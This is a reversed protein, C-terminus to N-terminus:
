YGLLRGENTAPVGAGVGKHLILQRGEEQGAAYSDEYVQPGAHKISRLRPYRSRYYRILGPDSACVLSSATNEGSQRMAEQEQLALKAAFGKLVGLCYSNKQRGPAASLRRYQEWLHSLRRELFTAVYEAVALNERTGTLEIVRRTKGSQASFQRVIVVNVYFFDKLISAIARHIAGLRKTGPNLILYDYDAPAKGAIRELNYKRLLLNAKQMALLAEHENASRALAFLKEVKGLIAACTESNGTKGPLLRPISGTAARFDPHVGLRDCAEQFAPGHPLEDSRGMVQHVYQHSIEHKLIEVVVDWSHEMILWSAIKLTDFGPSWAGARSRGDSIEFVPPALPLRYLWCLQRHEVLLQKSWLRRLKEEEIRM